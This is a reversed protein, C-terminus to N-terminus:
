GGGRPLLRWRGGHPTEWTWISEGVMNGVRVFVPLTPGDYIARAELVGIADTLAQANPAKQTAFYYARRLWLRFDTSRLPFTAQLDGDQLSVFGSKHCDHFFEGHSALAILIEAQTPKKAQEPSAEEKSPIEPESATVPRAEAKLCKVLSQIDEGEVHAESLDKLGAPPIMAKVKAGPLRAAVQGPLEPADPEQWVYITHFDAFLAPDITKLLTKGPIGVAPLDYNWATLADSEGEVLILEGGPRFEPLRWLGYLMPKGGRKSKPREAMSFRFRVSEKIERGEHDRYTFVLYPGGKGTAQFVGHTALFAPALQKAKAFEALTLGAPAAADSSKKKEGQKSSKKTPWLGKARLAEIVAEQPCGGFCKVLLKGKEDSISLSPNEDRHAPCHTLYGGGSKRGCKCGPQGCALAQAIQEATPIM